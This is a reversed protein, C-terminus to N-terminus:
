IGKTLTLLFQQQSRLLATLAEIISNKNSTANDFKTQLVSNDTLKGSAFQDITTGLALYSSQTYTSGATQTPLVLSLFEQATLSTDENYQGALTLLDAYTKSGDADMADADKKLQASFKSAANAIQTNANMAALHTGITTNASLYGAFFKAMVINGATTTKGGVAWLGTPTADDGPNFAINPDLTQTYNPDTTIQTPNRVTLDITTFDAIPM